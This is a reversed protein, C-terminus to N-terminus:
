NELLVEAEEVLEEVVETGIVEEETVESVSLPVVVAIGVSAGVVARGVLPVVVSPGVEVSAGVVMRGVLPVLVTIGGVVDRAGLLM